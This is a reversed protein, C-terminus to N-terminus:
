ATFLCTSTSKIFTELLIQQSLHCIPIVGYIYIELVLYVVMLGRVSLIVIKKKHHLM